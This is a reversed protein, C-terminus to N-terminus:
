HVPVRQKLEDFWNLVVTIQQAPGPKTDGSTSSDPLVVIFHKGDPTIDYNRGPGGLLAGKIPLPM